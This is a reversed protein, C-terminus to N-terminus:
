FFQGGGGKVIPRPVHVIPSIKKLFIYDIFQMEEFIIVLMGFFLELIRQMRKCNSEGFAMLVKHITQTFIIIIFYM